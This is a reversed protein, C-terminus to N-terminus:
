HAHVGLSVCLSELGCTHTCPYFRKELIGMGSFPAEGTARKEWRERCLCVGIGQLPSVRKGSVSIRELTCQGSTSLGGPNWVFLGPLSSTIANLPFIVRMGSYWIGKWSWQNENKKETFNISSLILNDATLKICYNKTISRYTVQSRVRFITWCNFSMTLIFLRGNGNM